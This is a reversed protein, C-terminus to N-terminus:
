LGGFSSHFSCSFSYKWIHSPHSAPAPDRARLVKIPHRHWCTVLLNFMWRSILVLHVWRTEIKSSPRENLWKLIIKCPAFKYILRHLNHWRIGRLMLLEAQCFWRCQGLAVSKLDRVCSSADHNKVSRFNFNGAMFFINLDLAVHWNQFRTM